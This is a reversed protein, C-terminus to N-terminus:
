STECFDSESRICESRTIQKLLSLSTVAAGAERGQPKQMQPTNTSSIELQSKIWLVMETPACAPNEAVFHEKM